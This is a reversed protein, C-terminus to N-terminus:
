GLIPHTVKFLKRLRQEEPVDLYGLMYGINEKAFNNTALYANLFEQAEAETKCMCAADMIDGMTKLEKGRWIFKM